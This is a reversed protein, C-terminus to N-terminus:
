IGQRAAPAANRDGASQPRKAAAGARCPQADIQRRAYRRSGSQRHDGAAGPYVAAL